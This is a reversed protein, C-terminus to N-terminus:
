LKTKYMDRYFTEGKNVSNKKDLLNHKELLALLTGLSAPDLKSENLREFETKVICDVITGFGHKVSNCFSVIQKEKEPTM